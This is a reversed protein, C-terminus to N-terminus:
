TYHHSECALRARAPQSEEWSMRLMRTCASHRKIFHRRMRWLATSHCQVCRIRVRNAGSAHSGAHESPSRISGAASQTRAAVRLQRSVTSDYTPVAALIAEFGNPVGSDRPRPLPPMIAQSGDKPPTAEIAVVNLSHRVAGAWIRKHHQRLDRGAMANLAHEENRTVAAARGRRTAECFMHTRLFRARYADRAVGGCRLCELVRVSTRQEGRLVRLKLKVHEPLEATKRVVRRQQGRNKLRTGPCQEHDAIFRNRNAYKKCSGCRMCHVFRQTAGAAGASAPSDHCVFRIHEPLPNKGGTWREGQCAAHRRIFRARNNHADRGAAGCRSCELVEAAEGALLAMKRHIHDPLKLARSSARNQAKGAADASAGDLAIDEPLAGCPRLRKL